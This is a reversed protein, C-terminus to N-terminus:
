DETLRKITGDRRLKKRYEPLHVQALADLATSTLKALRSLQMEDTETFDGKYKDSAQILGYNLGDSGVIPIALWGRMPPHKENEAGFNRWEPHAELESQTLRMPKNTKTLYAHIGFGVAPTTYDAWKAYKESLSFYKRAQSWDGDAMITAAGQHAGTVVRTLEAALELVPEAATYFASWNSRETSKPPTSSNHYTNVFQDSVSASKNAARRRLNSGRRKTSTRPKNATM